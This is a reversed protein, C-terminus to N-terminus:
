DNAPGNATRHPAGIPLKVTGGRAQSLRQAAAPSHRGAAWPCPGGTDLRGAARGPCALSAHGGRDAAGVLIIMRM